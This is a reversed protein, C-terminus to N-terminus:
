GGHMIRQNYREEAIRELEEATCPICGYRKVLIELQTDLMRFLRPLDEDTAGIGGKQHNTLPAFIEKAAEDMAELVKDRFKETAEDININM